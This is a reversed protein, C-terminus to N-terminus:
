NRERGQKQKGMTLIFKFEADIQLLQQKRRDGKIQNINGEM